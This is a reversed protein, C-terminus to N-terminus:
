FLNTDIAYFATYIFAVGGLLIKWELAADMGYNSKIVIFSMFILISNMIAAITLAYFNLFYAAILMFADYGFLLGWAKEYTGKVYYCYLILMGILSYIIFLVLSILANNILYIMSFSIVLFVILLTWVKEENVAFKQKIKYFLDGIKEDPYKIEGFKEFVWNIYRQYYSQPYRYELAYDYSKEIIDGYKEIKDNVSEPGPIKKKLKRWIYRFVFFLVGILILLDILIEVIDFITNAISSFKGVLSREEM